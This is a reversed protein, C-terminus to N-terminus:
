IAYDGPRYGDLNAKYWEITRQLGSRLGVQPTWGLLERARTNDALLRGVESDQPRLRQPDEEISVTRGTLDAIEEALAGISIEEGRGLNVVEGMVKQAQAARVFGDVIDSVYSLDRTPRLSGLRVVNGALCQIIITPIVARASQRPGFTNFPRVTVVPTGYARFFADALADAGVKSAAYPSQVQVPHREDIPVYQATGYVESTSTLVIREVGRSRAAQLMNLTGEINSRVYSRPAHYSYPVAILAALHFVVDVDEVARDVSDPDTIDGFVVELKELLPSRELWGMRGLANYRVLARTRAGLRALQEALHSGIFGGAGSVLVRRGSWSM